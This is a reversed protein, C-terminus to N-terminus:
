SVLFNTKVGKILLWLMITIEGASGFLLTFQSVTTKYMPFLLFASCDLIYGVGGSILLIGILSPIFGSKYILLGFPLLWLGWFMESISIIYNSTNLFLIAYEKRHVIDISKLLEGKVIMIGSINFAEAIFGIPISLIMWAFMLKAQRNNVSKLLQYLSLALLIWPISNVLRIYIGSRFLFENAVLINVIEATAGHMSIKSSIFIIGYISIVVNLLYFFGALRATKKLTPITKEM